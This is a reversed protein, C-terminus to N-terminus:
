FGDREDGEIDQKYVSGLTDDRVLVEGIGAGMSSNNKYFDLRRM